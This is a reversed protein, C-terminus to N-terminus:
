SKDGATRPVGKGVDPVLPDERTDDSQHAWVRISHDRARLQSSELTPDPLVRAAGQNPQPIDPLHHTELTSVFNVVFRGGVFNGV